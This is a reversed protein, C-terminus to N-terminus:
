YAFHLDFRGDTIEHKENTFSDIATFQFTGSIIQNVSDFRLIHVYGNNLAEDSNFAQAGVALTPFYHAVNGYKNKTLLFFTDTSLPRVYIEIVNKSDVGIDKQLGSLGFMWNYNRDISAYLKPVSTKSYPIWVKGDIKCGITNKGETTIAPLQLEANPNSPDNKDKPCQLGALLMFSFVFM